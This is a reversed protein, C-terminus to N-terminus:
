IAWTCYFSTSTRFCSRLHNLFTELTYTETGTRKERTHHKAHDACLVVIYGDSNYGSVTICSAMWFKRFFIRNIIGPYIARYRFRFRRGWVSVRPQGYVMAGSYSVRIYVSSQVWHRVIYGTIPDAVMDCHFLFCSCLRYWFM